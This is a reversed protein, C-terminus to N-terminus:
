DIFVNDTEEITSINVPKNSSILIYRIIYIIICMFLPIVVIIGLIYLMEILLSM